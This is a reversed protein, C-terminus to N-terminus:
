MMVSHKLWLIMVQFHCNTTLPLWFKMSNCQKQIFNLKDNM